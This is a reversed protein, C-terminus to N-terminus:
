YLAASADALGPPLERVEVGLQAPDDAAFGRYDVWCHTFFYQFPTGSNSAVFPPLDGHRRVVRQLRYYDTPPLAFQPTPCGAAMFYIIREEDGMVRWTAPILRGDGALNINDAPWWGMSLFGSDPDIFARWNSEAAMEDVLKAAEGGFYEAAPMAGALLLAHDVTSAENKFRPYLDGTDAHVFHVHVGHRRNDNRDRLAHLVKLAREHGQARTIWGREVGIPLASLQFGVGALSAVVTARRDKALGTAGVEHWLYNFCGRQIQELLQEDAASFRHSLAAKTATTRLVDV